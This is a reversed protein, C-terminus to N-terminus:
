GKDLCLNQKRIGDNMYNKIQMKTKTGVYNTIEDM